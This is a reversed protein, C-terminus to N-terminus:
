ILNLTENCLVSTDQNCYFDHTMGLIAFIEFHFFSSSWYIGVSLHSIPSWWFSFSESQTFVRKLAHFLCIVFPSFIKAFCTDSLPCVDPIYSSCEFSLMSFPAILFHDFYVFLYKKWWLPYIVFKSLMNYLLSMVKSVFTWRTLAITKGTTMYLWIYPQSLQVMFFASCWFISAKPSHHQLLSKFTGQAALLDLGDTRFSILGSYENSPSISFSFSWYKSWRISQGVSENSFVRISPFISPLLLLPRCPILHNSPMVSEISMFKLSSWSVTFSLSPQRAAAAPNCLTTCPKVVSCCCCTYSFWKAICCFNVGGQLDIISWYFLKKKLIHM